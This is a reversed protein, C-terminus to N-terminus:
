RGVPVEPTARVAQSRARAGTVGVVAAAAVTGVLLFALGRFSGTVVLDGEARKTGLTLAIGLWIVGPLVAGVRRRLVRAGAVGLGINAVGALLASVPLPQGFVRAGVLFAEWVALEVTLVLVLAYSFATGARTM